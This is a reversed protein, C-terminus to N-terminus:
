KESRKEIKNKDSDAMGQWAEHVNIGLEHAIFLTDALIDAIEDSIGMKLEESTKNHAFREGKLQMVLKMLSGVQYVLDKTATEYTWTSTGTKDYEAFTRVVDQTMEAITKEKM